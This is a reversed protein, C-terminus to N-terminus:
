ARNAIPLVDLPRNQSPETAITAGLLSLPPHQHRRLHDLLAEIEIKVQHHGVKGRGIEDYLPRAPEPPM